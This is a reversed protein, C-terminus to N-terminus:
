QRAWKITKNVSSAEVIRVLYNFIWEWFHPSQVQKVWGTSLHLYWLRELRKRALTVIFALVQTAASEWYPINIVSLVVVLVLLHAALAKLDESRTRRCQDASQYLAPFGQGAYGKREVGWNRTSMKPTITIARPRSVMINWPMRSSKQPFRSLSQASMKLFQLVPIRM